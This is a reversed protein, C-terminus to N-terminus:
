LSEWQYVHRTKQKLNNSKTKVFTKKERKNMKLGENNIRPSIILNTMYKVSKASLM